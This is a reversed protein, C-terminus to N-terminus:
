EQKKRIGSPQPKIVVPGDQRIFVEILFDGNPEATGWMDRLTHTNDFEMARGGIVVTLSPSGNVNMVLRLTDGHSTNRASAPIRIRATDSRDVITDRIGSQGDWEAYGSVDRSVSVERVAVAENGAADSVRYTVEYVGPEGTSVEDAGTVVIDATVDGDKNDVASAGPDVFPEGVTLSMPNDGLLALDPAIADPAVIVTRQATATNGANDTVTYTVTYEGAAATDVDIVKEVRDTINGDVEDSAHVGPDNYVDGVTITLPNEGFLEMTPPTTDVGPQGSGGDGVIVTRSAMARNGANDGVSYSLTYTGPTNVDISGTVVVGDTVDGDVDDVASYGPEEFSEGVALRVTAEGELTLVPPSGDSTNAEVYVVRYRTATNGAEDSVTYTVFYKGITTNDINDSIKVSDTIDGDANDVAAYGPEVFGTGAEITIVTDGELSLRPRVTDAVVPPNYDDGKKDLPNSFDVDTCMATLAAVAGTVAGLRIIDSPRM